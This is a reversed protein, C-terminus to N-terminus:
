SPRLKEARKAKGAEKLARWRARKEEYTLPANLLEPPELGNFGTNHLLRLIADEDSKSLGFVVGGRRQALSAMIHGTARIVEDQYIEAHALEAIRTTEYTTSKLRMCVIILSILHLWRKAYNKHFPMRWATSGSRVTVEVTRTVVACALFLDLPWKENFVEHYSNDNRLWKQRSAATLPTKFALSRVAAGLQKISVIRDGPRGQNRYKNSRREYFWGHDFLYTEINHQIRDLSRLSALDVTNQYNTAKIIRARVDDDASIIVKVLVARDDATNPRGSLTRYITETTQLGNVILVNEINISKGIVTTSSALVTIGNNLWWFDIEGSDL